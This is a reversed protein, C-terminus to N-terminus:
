NIKVIMVFIKKKEIICIVNRAFGCHWVWFRSIFKSPNNQNRLHNILLQVGITAIIRNGLQIIGNELEFKLQCSTSPQSVDITSQLYDLTNHKHKTFYSITRGESRLDIFYIEKNKESFKYLLDRFKGNDVAAIIIDFGKLDANTMIFKKKVDFAYREQLAVAKNKGLDDIEFNQYKLNKEEVEDADAITVTVDGVGNVDNIILDQLERAFFSGIGGAGVILINKM